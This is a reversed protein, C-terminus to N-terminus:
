ATKTLKTINGIVIRFFIIKVKLRRIKALAELSQASGATSLDLISGACM